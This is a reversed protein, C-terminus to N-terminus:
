VKDKSGLGGSDTPSPDPSPTSPTTTSGTPTPTPKPATPREKTPKRTPKQSPSASPTGNTTTPSAHRGTIRPHSERRVPTAGATPAVENPQVAPLRTPSDQVLGAAAFGRWLSGVVIVGLLLVGAAVSTYTLATRRQGTVGTLTDPTGGGDFEPLPGSIPLGKTNQPTPGGDEPMAGKWLPMPRSGGARTGGTRSGGTRSGGTRSGGTRSGGTRSGGTRTAAGRTDDARKAGAQTRGAQTRGPRSDGPRAPDARTASPQSNGAPTGGPTAEEEPFSASLSLTDRIVMARDAVATASAPREAPTKALLDAVLSRVPGPVGPPLEPPAERVHKLAIVVPTDADFPAAGTLCEYAVVGLSYLDSAPTVEQGSAQEPSIYHATGMVMGTQTQSSAMKLGRAIGFDTIKVTGDATVLLNAPKVDRHVIGAAHAVALARAAQAILDLAAEPTLGGTRALIGSLPEGPVLEMVLYARGDVEGFDYVQAIGGHQLAAAFRAEAQFRGRARTDTILEDRLVKVAVERALTEDMARWVEGMGGTALLELLRYRHNLVLGPTM